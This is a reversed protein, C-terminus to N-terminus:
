KVSKKSKTNFSKNIQKVQAQISDLLVGKSQIYVKQNIQDRQIISDIQQITKPSLETTKNFSIISFIISAIGITLSILIGIITLCYQVEYRSKEEEYKLTEENRFDVNVFDILEQRIYYTKSLKEFILKSSAPGYNSRYILFKSHGKKPIEFCHNGNAIDLEFLFGVEKLYEFLFAADLIAKEIEDQIPVIKGDNIKYVNGDFLFEMLYSDVLLQSQICINKGLLLFEIVSSFRFYRKNNEQRARVIEKLIIKDHDFLTRM